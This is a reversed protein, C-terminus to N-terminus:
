YKDKPIKFDNALCVYDPDKEDKDLPCLRSMCDAVINDKGPIHEIDFNYQQILLKWRMVKDSGALNLYTLNKHDTRLTFKIHQILHKFKEFSLFIAYCEKEPTSWRLQEDKLSRSLFAVPQEEGDVIQFLYAGIGYNSADTHLFVEGTVNPFYLKPCNVISRKLDEYAKEGDLTWEFHKTRKYVSLMVRMPGEMKAFDRIHRRFYGALGIFSMLTKATMPKPFDAVESIKERTFSLGTDDIVHGVYEVRSM